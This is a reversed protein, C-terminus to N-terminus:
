GASVASNAATTQSPVDEESDEMLGLEEFTPRYKPNFMLPGLVPRHKPQLRVFLPEYMFSVSACLGEYPVAYVEHWWGFPLYLVEGPGVEVELPRLACARDKYEEPPDHIDYAAYNLVAENSVGAPCREFDDGTWTYYVKRLRGDVLNKSASCIKSMTLIYHRSQRGEWGSIRRKQFLVRARVRRVVSTLRWFNLHRGQVLTPIGMLTTRTAMERCHPPSSGCMCLFEHLLWLLFGAGMFLVLCNNWRAAGNMLM